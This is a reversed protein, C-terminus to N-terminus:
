INLLLAQLFSDVWVQNTSFCHLLSVFRGKRTVWGFYWVRQSLANRSSLLTTSTLNDMQRLQSRVTAKASTRDLAFVKAIARLDPPARRDTRCRWKSVPIALCRDARKATKAVRVLSSSFWFTASLPSDSASWCHSWSVLWCISMRYSCTGCAPRPKHLPFQQWVVQAQAM